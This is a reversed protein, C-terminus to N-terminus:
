TVEIDALTPRKTIFLLSPQDPVVEISLAMLREDGDAKRARYLTQRFKDPDPTVVAIGYSSALAM